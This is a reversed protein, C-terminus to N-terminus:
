MQVSRGRGAGLGTAAYAGGPAPAEFGFPQSTKVPPTQWLAREYPLNPRSRGAFTDRTVSGDPDRSSGLRARGFQVLDDNSLHYSMGSAGRRAAGPPNIRDVTSRRNVSAM